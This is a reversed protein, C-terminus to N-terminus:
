SQDDLNVWHAAGSPEWEKKWIPVREKIRDIALRCGRFAADRHPASAGVVVALDGVVLEGVRHTAALRVGEAALETQVESLVARLEQLALTPHHEYDLRAVPRGDATDRVVGVFVTIGGASPHSVAKYIEDISLPASRIEALPHSGGAVPPLVDVRDGAAPQYEAGVFVDNVALRMSGLLPGLAPHRAAIAARLAAHTAVEAIPFREETLGALERAGAFYRITLEQETVDRFM